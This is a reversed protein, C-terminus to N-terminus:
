SPDGGGDGIAAVGPQCPAAQEEGGDVEDRALPLDPEDPNSSTHRVDGSLKPLHVSLCSLWASYDEMVGLVERKSLNFRDAVVEALASVLEPTRPRWPGQLNAKINTSRQSERLQAVAVGFRIQARPGDGVLAEGHLKGESAWQSVRALTVGMMSSFLTKSILDSM